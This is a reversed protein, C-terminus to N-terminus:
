GALFFRTSSSAGQGPPNVACFAKSFIRSIKLRRILEKKPFIIYTKEASKNSVEL